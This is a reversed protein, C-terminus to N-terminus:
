ALINMAVSTVNLSAAMKLAILFRAGHKSNGSEIQHNKQMFNRWGGTTLSSEVACQTASTFKGDMTRTSTVWQRLQEVKLWLLTPRASFHNVSSQLAFDRKAPKLLPACVLAVLESSLLMSDIAITNSRMIQWPNTRSSTTTPLPAPQSLDYM